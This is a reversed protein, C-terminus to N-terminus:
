MAAARLPPQIHVVLLYLVLCIKEGWLPGSNTLLLLDIVFKADM